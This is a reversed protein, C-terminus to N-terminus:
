GQQRKSRGKTTCILGNKTTSGVCFVVFRTPTRVCARVGLSTAKGKHSAWIWYSNGWVFQVLEMLVTGCLQAFAITDTCYRVRKGLKTYKGGNRAFMGREVVHM